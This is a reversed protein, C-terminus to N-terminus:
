VPTSSKRNCSITTESRWYEFGRVLQDYFIAGEFSALMIQTQRSV